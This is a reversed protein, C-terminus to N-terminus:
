VGYMAFVEDATNGSTHERDTTVENDGGMTIVPTVKMANSGYVVDSDGLGGIFADTEGGVREKETIKHLVGDHVFMILYTCIFIYFSLKFVIFVSTGKKCPYLVMILIVIMATLIGSTYFKNCFLNTMGRSAFSWGCTEEGFSQLEIM